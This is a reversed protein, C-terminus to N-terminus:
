RFTPKAGASNKFYDTNILQKIDDAPIFRPQDLRLQDVSAGSFIEALVRGDLHNPQEVSLISLITPMIDFITVGNMEAGPQIDQGTIFFVGESDRQCFVPYDDNATGIYLKSTRKGPDLTYKNQTPIIIIDPANNLYEGSFVDEKRYVDDVVHDFNYPDKLHYLESIIRDRIKEYEKGPKVTGMPERGMLNINIGQLNESIFYAKTNQWRIDLYERQFIRRIPSPIAKKLFESAVDPLLSRIRNKTIGFRTLLGAISPEHHHNNNFIIEDVDTILSKQTTIRRDLLGQEYLWENVFFKKSVASFGHNSVLIFHCQDGLYQDLEALKRDIKQYAAEVVASDEWFYKQIRDLLNFTAIALQWDDERLLRFFSSFQREFLNVAKDFYSGANGNTMPGCDIEYDSQKLLQYLSNPYAFPQDPPTLFGSVMYGNIEEPQAALPINFAITRLARRSAIEWILPSKIDAKKLLAAPAFSNRHYLYDYINHKGPNAGTFLSGWSAASNVPLVSKLKGFAGNGILKQFFPLKQQKVMPEILNFTAGDLGIIVVKRNNCFHDSPEGHFLTDRM